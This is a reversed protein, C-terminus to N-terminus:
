PRREATVAGTMRDIRLLVTTGSSRLVISGGTSSGLPFLLVGSARAEGWGAGRVPALGAPEVVVADDVPATRI